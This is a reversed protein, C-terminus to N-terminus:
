VLSGCGSGSGRIRHHRRQECGGVSDLGPEFLAQCDYPKRRGLVGDHGLERLGPLRECQTLQGGPHATDSGVHGLQNITQFGLAQNAPNVIGTIASDNSGREGRETLFPFDCARILHSLDLALECGSQGLVIAGCEFPYSRRQPLKKSIYNIYASDTATCHLPSAVL